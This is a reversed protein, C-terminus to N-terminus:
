YINGANVVAGSDITVSATATCGDDDDTVTVEYSGPCLDVATATTQGYPDDWEFSYNGSGSSPSVTAEGDCDGACSEDLSHPFRLTSIVFMPVIMATEM